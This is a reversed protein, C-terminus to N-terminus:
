FNDLSNETQVTRKPYKEGFCNITNESGCNWCRAHCEKSVYNRDCTYCYQPYYIM